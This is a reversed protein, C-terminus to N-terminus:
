NQTIAPQDHWIYFLFARGNVHITAVLGDHRVIELGESFDIGTFSESLPFRNRESFPVPKLESTQFEDLSLHRRFGIYLYELKM